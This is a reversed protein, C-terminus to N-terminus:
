HFMESCMIEIPDHPPETEKLSMISDQIETSLEIFSNLGSALKTGKGVTKNVSNTNIVGIPTSDNPESIIPISTQIALGVRHQLDPNGETVISLRTIPRFAPLGPGKVKSQILTFQNAALTCRKPVILTIGNCSPPESSVPIYADNFKVLYRENDVSWQKYKSLM